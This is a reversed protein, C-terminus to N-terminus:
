RYRVWRMVLPAAVFLSSYTGVIVGVSMGFAFPKITNGAFLLLVFVLIFTTLSTNITRTLIQSVSENILTPIDRGRFKKMNERIRDYVIITNNLSYGILTLLAAVAPVNIEYKFISFFGLTVLVDHTLAAIAGVGFIFNFRLTIYALIAVLTILIARWTLRRIEEAASGGTENFSVVEAKFGKVELKKELEEVIKFKEEADFTKSVTVSFKVVGAPDGVSRVRTVRAAAFDPSIESLVQRLDQEVMNGEARVLIESGGVFEVGLNFGRTFIFLLSLVVFFAAIGLWVTRKSVVDIKKM